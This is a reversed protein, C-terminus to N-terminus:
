LRPISNLRDMLILQSPNHRMIPNRVANGEDHWTCGTCRRHVAQLAHVEQIDWGGYLLIVLIYKIEEGKAPQRRHITGPYLEPVTQNCIHKIVTAIISWRLRLLCSNKSTEAAQIERGPLARKLSPTHCLIFPKSWM